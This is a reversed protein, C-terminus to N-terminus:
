AIWLKTNACIHECHVRNKLLSWDDQNETSSARVRLGRSSQKVNFIFRRDDLINLWGVQPNTWGIRTGHVTLTLCAKAVDNVEISMPPKDTTSMASTKVSKKRGRELM